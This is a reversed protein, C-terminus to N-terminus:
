RTDGATAVDDGFWKERILNYSGDERM